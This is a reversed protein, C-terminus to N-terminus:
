EVLGAAESCTMKCFTWLSLQCVELSVPILQGIDCGCFFDQVQGTVYSTKLETHDLIDGKEENRGHTM